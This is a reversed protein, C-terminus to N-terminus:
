ISTHIVFCGVFHLLTFDSTYANQKNRVVFMMLSTKRNTASPFRHLYFLFSIFGTQQFASNCDQSFFRYLDVAYVLAAPVSCWRRFYSIAIRLAIIVHLSLHVHPSPYSLRKSPSKLVQDMSVTLSKSSTITQSNNYFM